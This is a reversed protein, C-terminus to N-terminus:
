NYAELDKYEYPMKNGLLKKVARKERNTPKVVISAWKQQIYLFRRLLETLTSGTLHGQNNTLTAVYQNKNRIIRKIM